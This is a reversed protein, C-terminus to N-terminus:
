AADEELWAWKKRWCITDICSQTVGYRAALERTTTTPRLRRIEQVDAERLKAWPHRSGRNHTGHEVKDMHNASTTKWSLHRPNVCGLHGKGCSHAAEHNHTPPEGHVMECVVRSVIRTRGDAFFRGYGKDDRAFPWTLCDDGQYNLVVNCVYDQAPARRNPAEVSDGYKLWSKYHRNCWGYGVVKGGCGEISCSKGGRGGGSLERWKCGCSKHKGNAVNSAIAVVDNGCDCKLAWATVRRAKLQKHTKGVVTLYGFRLGPYIESQKM